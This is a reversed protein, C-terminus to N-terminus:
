SGVVEWRALDAAPSPKGNWLHVKYDGDKLKAENKYDASMDAVYLAFTRAGLDTPKLASAISTAIPRLADATKSDPVCLDLAVGVLGPKDSQTSVRGTIVQVGPPLQLSAAFAALDPDSIPSSKYCGAAAPTASAPAVAASTPANKTESTSNSGCGALAVAAAAITLVAVTKM